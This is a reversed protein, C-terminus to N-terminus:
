TGRFSGRAAMLTVLLSVLPPPSKEVNNASTVIPDKGRGRYYTNERSTTHTGKCPEDSFSYIHLSCLGLECNAYPTVM